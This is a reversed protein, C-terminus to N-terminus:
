LQYVVVAPPKSPLLEGGLDKLELVYRLVNVDNLCSIGRLKQPFHFRLLPRCLDEEFDQPVDFSRRLRGNFIFWLM